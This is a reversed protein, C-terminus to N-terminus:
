EAHLSCKVHVEQTATIIIGVKWSIFSLKLFTIHSAWHWIMQLHCSKLRVGFGYETCFLSCRVLDSSSMHKQFSHRIPLPPLPNEPLVDPLCSAGLCHMMGLPLIYSYLSGQSIQRQDGSILRIRSTLWVRIWLVLCSGKCSSHLWQLAFALGAPLVPNSLQALTKCFWYSARKQLCSHFEGLVDDSLVLSLPTNQRWVQEPSPRQTNGEVKGLSLHWISEMGCGLEKGHALGGGETKPCPTKLNGQFTSLQQGYFTPGGPIAHLGPTCVSDWHSSDILRGVWPLCGRHRRILLSGPTEEQTRKLRPRWHSGYELSVARM